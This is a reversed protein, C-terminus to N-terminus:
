LDAEELCDLTSSKAKSRTYSFIQRIRMKAHLIEARTSEGIYGQPAAPTPVDIVMVARSLDIKEKHLHDLRDKHEQIIEKIAPDNDSYLFSGVSLVVWGNMTLWFNADNFQERFRTSGCLTIIGQM